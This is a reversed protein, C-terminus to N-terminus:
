VPIPDSRVDVWFTEYTQVFTARFVVTIGTTNPLWVFEQELKLVKSNHTVNDQRLLVFTDILIINLGIIPEGIRNYCQNGLHELFVTVEKGSPIAEVKYPAADNRKTYNDHVPTM